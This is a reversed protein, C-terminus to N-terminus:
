SAEDFTLAASDFSRAASDFTHSQGPTGSQTGPSYDEWPELPAAREEPLVDMKIMQLGRGASAVIQPPIARDYLDALAIILNDQIAPLYSDPCPLTVEATVPTTVGTEAGVYAWFALMDNLRELADALAEPSPTENAGFIKRLAFECLQRATKAM